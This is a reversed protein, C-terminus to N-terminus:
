IELICFYLFFFHLACVVGSTNNASMKRRRQENEGGMRVRMTGELRLYFRYINSFILKCTFFRSSFFFFDYRQGLRRWVRRKPWNEDGGGM